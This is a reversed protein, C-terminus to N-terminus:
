QQFHINRFSAFPFLKTETRSLSGNSLFCSWSPHPFWSSIRDVTEQQSWILLRPLYAWAPQDRRLTRGLPYVWLPTPERSSRYLPPSLGAATATLGYLTHVSLNDDKHVTPITPQLSTSWTSPCLFSTCVTSFLLYGLIDTSLSQWHTPIHITISPSGWGHNSFCFSM